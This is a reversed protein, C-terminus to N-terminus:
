KPTIEEPIACSYKEGGLRREHERKAEALLDPNDIADLATMAMARGAYLIGKHMISSKGAAVWQWSHAPTGAPYTTVLAQATPAIWSADGVDTSGPMAADTMAYPFVRSLLPDAAMGGADDGFSKKLMDAVGRRAIDPLTAAYKGAYEIEDASYEIDGLALMNDYMARSLADNIIFESCASDWEVEMSTGTMLAAGRAVDTVREFIPKVQSSRPARIFYLVKATPQVVNPSGGGADVYAYHIRAADIIHERLYNVGVSMLEAADLASRGMEPSAAAHSSVGSFRYFVQYNALSSTGWVRTETWPHWSFLADAGDFVGGRAMFAKGSGSEEAPCGYFKVTGAPTGREALCDKLAVAAALSGAGLGNHGCGHGNGCTALPQKEFQDAAQSMGALADYEALFGVTPGGGGWTAVFADSMGGVGRAVDFGESELVSIIADASRPLDFRMEAFDWIKDSVGTFIEAKRRVSDIIKRKDDNKTM